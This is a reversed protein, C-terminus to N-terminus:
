LYMDDQSDLDNWSLEGPYEKSDGYGSVGTQCEHLHDLIRNNVRRIARINECIEELLQMKKDEYAPTKNEATM